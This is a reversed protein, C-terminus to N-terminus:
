MVRSNKSFYIETNLEKIFDFLPYKYQLHSLFDKPNIHEDLGQLKKEIVYYVADSVFIPKL